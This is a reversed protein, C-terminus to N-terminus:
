VNDLSICLAFLSKFSVVRGKLDVDMAIAIAELGTLLEKIDPRDAPNVKLMYELLLFFFFFRFDFTALISTTSFIVSRFKLVNPLLVPFGPNNNAGSPSSSGYLFITTSKPFTSLVGLLYWSGVKHAHCSIKEGRYPVVLVGTIKM